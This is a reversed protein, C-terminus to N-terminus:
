WLFTLSFVVLLVLQLNTLAVVSLVRYMEYSAAATLAVTATFVATRWRRATSDGQRRWAHNASDWQVLDQVPMPLPAEDPVAPAFSVTADQTPSMEVRSIPDM